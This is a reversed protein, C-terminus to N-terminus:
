KGGIIHFELDNLVAASAIIIDIGRGAYLHGVYGVKKIKNNIKVNFKNDAFPDDAADHAVLIKTELEPFLSLYIEKLKESIVVIRKCNKRNFLKREMIFELKNAPPRHSEAIFSVNKPLASLWYLNRGYVISNDTLNNSILPKLYQLAFVYSPFGAVKLFPMKLRLYWLLASIGKEKEDYRHIPFPDRVGYYAYIDELDGHGSKGYLTVKHGINIFAQCMKMVHVSNATDSILESSSLYHIHLINEYIKHYPYPRKIPRKWATIRRGM